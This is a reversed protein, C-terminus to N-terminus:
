GLVNVASAIVLGIVALSVISQVGMALKAWHTLPMTDTPSFAISNTLGLYLYDLFVPRWGPPALHPSTHQPFAFDPHAVVTHARRGPGGSDLEWYLFAFAIAIYAFVLSGAFLLKGATKTTSGGDIIDNTLAVTAWAAGIVLVCILALRIARVKTSRADIRGPDTALMAVLLIAELASFAYGKGLSFENPMLLPLAIAVLLTIVVPARPDGRLDSSESADIACDTERTRTRDLTRGHSLAGDNALRRPPALRREREV